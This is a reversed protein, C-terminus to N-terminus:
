INAKKKFMAPTMGTNKKFTSYFSSKSNFGCEYGISEISYEPNEVILKKAAEVRYTGLIGPFSTNMNVNLVQSLKNPQIGIKRAVKQLSINPDRFFQNEKLVEGLVHVIREVEASEITSKSYKPPDLLLLSKRRKTLLILLLLLYFILTFTLAGIIYSTYPSLNYALWIIVNGFYISLIWVKFSGNSTTTIEKRRFTSYLQIGAAVLYALWQLHIGFIFYNQWLPRYEEWPYTLNVFLAILILGLTHYVWFPRKIEKKSTAYIVYFYLFPGLLWCATLGIQVFVGALDYNFYYFVSKGIRISLFLLLFGLFIHSKHKPRAFFFFYIALVLGNCVGLASFLFLLEKSFDM